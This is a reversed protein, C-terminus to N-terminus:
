QEVILQDVSKASFWSSSVFNILQEFGTLGARFVRVASSKQNELLQCFFHCKSLHHRAFSFNHRGTKKLLRIELLQDHGPVRSQKLSKWFLNIPNITSMIKVAFFSLWTEWPIVFLRFRFNGLIEPEEFSTNIYYRNNLM